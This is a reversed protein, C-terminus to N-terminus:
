QGSFKNQPTNEKLITIDAVSFGINDNVHDEDFDTSRFIKDAEQSNFFLNLHSNSILVITAGLWQQIRSSFEFTCLILTNSNNSTYVTVFSVHLHLMLENNTTQENSLGMHKYFLHDAVLFVPCTKKDRGAGRRSFM